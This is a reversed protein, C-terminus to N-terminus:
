TQNVTENVSKTSNELDFPDDFDTLNVGYDVSATIGGTLNSAAFISRHMEDTHQLLKSDKDFGTESKSIIDSHFMGKGQYDASIAYTKTDVLKDSQYINVGAGGPGQAGTMANVDVHSPYSGTSVTGVAGLDGATCELESENPINSSTALTDWTAFGGLSELHSSSSYSSGLSATTNIESLGPGTVTQSGAAWEQLIGNGNFIKLNRGDQGQQDNNSSFGGTSYVYEKATWGASAPLVLVLLVVFFTILKM